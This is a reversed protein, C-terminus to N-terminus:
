GPSLCRLAFRVQASGIPSAAQSRGCARERRAIGAVLPVVRPQDRAAQIGWAQHEGLPPCAPVDRLLRGFATLERAFQWSSGVFYSVIGLVCGSALGVFAVLGFRRSIM